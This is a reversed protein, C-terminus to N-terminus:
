KWLFSKARLSTKYCLCLTIRFDPTNSTVYQTHIAKFSMQRNWSNQFGGKPNHFHINNWSSFRIPVGKLFEALSSKRKQLLDFSFWNLFVIITCLNSPDHSVGTYLLRCHPFWCSKAKDYNLVFGGLSAFCRQEAQTSCPPNFPM